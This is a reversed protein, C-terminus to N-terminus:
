SLEINTMAIRVTHNKSSPGQGVIVGFYIEGSAASIDYEKSVTVNSGNRITTNEYGGLTQMEGSWSNVTFLGIYCYVADSASSTDTIRGNLTLKTHGDVNVRTYITVYNNSVTTMTFTTNANAASVTGGSGVWASAGYANPNPAIILRWDAWAGNQYIKAKKYVWAGSIYQKASMPYVMIGNKKLANFAVSSTSDTTIWVTGEEYATPREESFYWSTIKTETNVWIDNPKPNSPASTGGIVRFNFGANGGGGNGHLYAIGM